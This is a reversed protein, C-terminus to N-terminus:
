VDPQNPFMTGFSVAWFKLAEGGGIQILILLTYPDVQGLITPISKTM